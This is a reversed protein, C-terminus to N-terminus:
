KELHRLITLINLQFFIDILIERTNENSNRGPWNVMILQVLLLSEMSCTKNFKWKVM